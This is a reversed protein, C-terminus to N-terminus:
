FDSNIGHLPELKGPLLSGYCTECLAATVIFVYEEQATNYYYQLDEKYYYNFLQLKWM